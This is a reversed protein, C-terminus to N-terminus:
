SLSLIIINCFVSNIGVDAPSNRHLVPLAVYIRKSKKNPNKKFLHTISGKARCENEKGLMVLRQKRDKGEVM